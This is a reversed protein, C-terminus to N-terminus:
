WLGPLTGPLNLRALKVLAEQANNRAKPREDCHGWFFPHQSRLLSLFYMRYSINGSHLGWKLSATCVARARDRMEKSVLLVM